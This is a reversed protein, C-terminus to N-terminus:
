NKEQLVNKLDVTAVVFRTEFTQHVAQHIHLQVIDLDESVNLCKIRICILGPKTQEQCAHANVNYHCCTKESVLVEGEVKGLAHLM